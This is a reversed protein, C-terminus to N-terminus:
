IIYKFKELFMFNVHCSLLGFEKEPLGDIISM